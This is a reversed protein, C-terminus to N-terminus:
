DYRLFDATTRNFMERHEVMVWHGCQSVLMLRINTCNKALTQIGTEPMMKENVGWFALVPCSIEHLSAAMNPVVMSSIVQSNQQQFIGWRENILQEDVVSDDYVLGRRIFDELREPAMPGSTFVEKMIQMGPMQFYDAQEEIGGPAMLVLKEIQSPNDLTYKIAIAGGLSNGILSCSGVGLHDLLQAICEVFVDLHYAIDEPKDSYGYGILDPVIVRYGQEALYPYNYKFNSHGSAGSGSGHLFVVVPGHGYDIYHLRHGNPLKAYNEEPLGAVNVAM